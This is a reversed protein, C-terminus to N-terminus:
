VLRLCEVSYSFKGVTQSSLFNLLMSVLYLCMGKLFDSPQGVDMWFGSLEMCHLEGEDAMVPFIEKEISTPRL